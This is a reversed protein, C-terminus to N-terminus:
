PVNAGDPRDVVVLPTFRCATLDTAVTTVGEEVTVVLDDTDIEDVCRSYGSPGTATYTFTGDRRYVQTSEDQDWSDFVYLVLDDGGPQGTDPVRVYRSDLSIGVALLAFLAPVAPLVLALLTVVTRTALGAAGRPMRVWCRSIIWGSAAAMAVLVLLARLAMGDFPGVLLLRESFGGFEEGIWVHTLVALVAVLALLDRWRPGWWSRESGGRVETM